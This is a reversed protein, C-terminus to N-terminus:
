AALGVPTPVLQRPFGVQTVKVEQRQWLVTMAVTLGIMLYLFDNVWFDAFASFVLFLIFNVRLGKSLWLLERPGSRKLQNLM